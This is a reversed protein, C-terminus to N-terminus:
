HKDCQSRNRCDRAECVENSNKQLPQAAAKEKSIKKTIKKTKRKKDTNKEQM